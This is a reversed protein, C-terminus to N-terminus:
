WQGKRAYEQVCVNSYIHGSDYLWDTPDADRLKAQEATDGLFCALRGLPQKPPVVSSIMFSVVLAIVVAVLMLTIAPQVGAHQRSMWRQVASEGAM